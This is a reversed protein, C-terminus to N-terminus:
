GFSTSFQSAGFQGSDGSNILKAAPMEGYLLMNGGTEADFVGVHSIMGWDETAPGFSIAATNTSTGSTADAASMAGTIAQRAYGGETVEGAASGVEGPDSTFLALYVTAPMAFAAKGLTHDLLKKELYNTMNAM